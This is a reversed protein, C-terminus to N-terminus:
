FLDTEMVFLEEQTHNRIIKILYDFNGKAKPTNIYKGSFDDKRHLIVAKYEKGSATKYIVEQGKQYKM